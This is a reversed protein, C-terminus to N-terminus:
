EVLRVPSLFESRLIIVASLRPLRPLSKQGAAYSPRGVPASMAFHTARRHRVVMMFTRSGDACNISAPAGTVEDGMWKVRRISDMGVGNCYFVPQHFSNTPCDGSNVTLLFTRAGQARHWTVGPRRLDVSLAVSFIGGTWDTSNKQSVLCTLTFHHPLLAGRFRYRNQCPLGWGTCSWISIRYRLGRQIRTPRKLSM